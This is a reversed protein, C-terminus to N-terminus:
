VTHTETYQVNTAATDGSNTITVEYSLTDGPTPGTGNVDTTLTDNLTATIIVPM